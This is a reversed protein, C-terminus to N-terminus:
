AAALQITGDGQVGDALQDAEQLGDLMGPLSASLLAGAFLVSDSHEVMFVNDNHRRSAALQCAHPTDANSKQLCEESAAAKM